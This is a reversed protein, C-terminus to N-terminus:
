RADGQQKERSSTRTANNAPKRGAQRAEPTSGATARRVSHPTALRGLNAYWSKEASSVIAQDAAVIVESNGVLFLALARRVSGRPLGPALEPVASM